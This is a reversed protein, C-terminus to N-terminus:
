MVQMAAASHSRDKLIQKVKAVVDDSDIKYLQINESIKETM